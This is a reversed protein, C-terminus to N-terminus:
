YTRFLAGIGVIIQRYATRTKTNISYPNYGSKFIQNLYYENLISSLFVSRHEIGSQIKAARSKDLYEKAICYISEIARGLDSNFNTFHQDDGLLDIPLPSRGQRAMTPFARILNTLGWAIGLDTAKEELGAQNGIIELLLINPVASIGFIYEILAEKNKPPWETFESSRAEILQDILSKTLSHRRILNPLHDAIYHGRFGRFSGDYIQDIVDQWWQIRMQGLLPESVIGGIKSIEANFALLTYIDERVEMPAFLTFLFRDWDYRRVEQACLSLSNFMESKAMFNQHIPAM